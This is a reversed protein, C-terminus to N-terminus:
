HEESRPQWADGADDPGGGALGGPRGGGNRWRAAHPLLAPQRGIADALVGLWGNWPKEHADSRPDTGGRVHPPGGPRAPVISRDPILDLDIPPLLPGVEIERPPVALALPQCLGADSPGLWLRDARM